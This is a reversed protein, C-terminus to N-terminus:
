GVVGASVSRGLSGRSARGPGDAVDRKSLSAVGIRDTLVALGACGTADEEEFGDVVGRGM